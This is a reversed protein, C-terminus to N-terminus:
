TRNQTPLRTGQTEDSTSRLFSLARNWIMRAAGASKGIAKGIDAWGAKEVDRLVLVVWETPSLQRRIEECRLNVSPDADYRVVLLTESLDVFNRAVAYRRYDIVKRRAVAFLWRRQAEESRGLVDSMNETFALGVRGLADAAEDPPVRRLLYDILARENKRWVIEARDRLESGTACPIHGSVSGLQIDPPDM